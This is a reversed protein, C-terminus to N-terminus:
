KRPTRVRLAEMEKGNSDFSIPPTVFWAQPIIPDHENKQFGRISYLDRSAGDDKEKLCTPCPAKPRQGDPHFHPATM